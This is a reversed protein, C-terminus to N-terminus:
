SALIAGHGHRDEGSLLPKSGSWNADTGVVGRSLLAHARLDTARPGEMVFSLPSM